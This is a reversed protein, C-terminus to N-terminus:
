SAATAPAIIGYVAYTDVEYNEWLYMKDEGTIAADVSGGVSGVMNRVFTGTSTTVLEIAIGAGINMVVNDKLIIELSATSQDADIAGQAYYGFIYCGEVRLRDAGGTVFIASDCNGGTVTHFICNLITVDDCEAAISIGIDMELINTNGDSIYCDEIWFGDASAGVTIGIEINALGSVVRINKIMVNAATVNIGASTDTHSTTTGCTFTPRHLGVGLGIINIGAVDAVVEDTNGDSSATGLDNLIEAHRPALLIVDGQSATCRSIAYNLTAFPASWLEGAVGNDADLADSNESDVFFVNGDATIRDLPLSAVATIGYKKVLENVRM